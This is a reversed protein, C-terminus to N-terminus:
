IVDILSYVIQEILGTLTGPFLGMLVSCLTLAVIPILMLSKPECKPEDGYDAGPFFGIFALELLYGATLLASILLIVPGLVSFVKIDSDLAGICLYWKSIFGGTPPIGILGLSLLTYCIMTIPMRRGVGRMESIKTVGLNHI